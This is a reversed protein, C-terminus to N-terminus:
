NKILKAQFFNQLGKGQIFSTEWKKLQALDLEILEDKQSLDLLAKREQRSLKGDILMGLILVKTLGERAEQNLKKAKQILDAESLAPRSQIELEFAEILSEALLYHNHHFSRKAIAIFKLSDYLVLKFDQNDILQKKLKQTLLTILHPALIRIKAERIVRNTAYADWFAFIPIGVYDALNARIAFRALIRSVIVKVFMNSLTAKLATFTQYVLIQTKSLGELPNIGFALMKTAPKELSVEFLINMFRQYHPNQPKPFNCVSAIQRVTRLNLFTLALIEAIALVIGYLTFAIPLETKGLYPLKAPYTWFIHGFLHYPLYLFIVGLAGFSASTLLSRQRIKALAKIEHANLLYEADSSKKSIFPLNQFYNKFYNELM